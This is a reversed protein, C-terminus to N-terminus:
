SPASGVVTDLLVMQPLFKGEITPPISYGGFERVIYRPLYDYIISYREGPAPAHLSDLWTIRDGYASIAFSDKPLQGSRTRISNIRVAPWEPLM